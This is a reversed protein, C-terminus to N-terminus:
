MSWRLVILESVRELSVLRWNPDTWLAESYVLGCHKATSWAVTSRQLGSWLAESYVLGCHKATSWVLTSRQLGSWLTESYVLGCHKATSWVVTNRQKREDPLMYKNKVHFESAFAAVGIQKKM